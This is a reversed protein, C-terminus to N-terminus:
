DDYADHRRLVAWDPCPTPDDYQDARVNGIVGHAHQFTRDLAEILEMTQVGIQTLQHKCVRPTPALICICTKSVSTAPHILRQPRHGIRSSARDKAEDAVVLQQRDSQSLVSM